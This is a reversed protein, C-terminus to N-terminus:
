RSPARHTWPNLRIALKALVTPLHCALVAGTWGADRGFHLGVGLRGKPDYWVSGSDGGHAIVDGAGRPVLRFGDIAVRQGELTMFYRGVGDVMGRTVATKSGSKELVEGLRARRAGRLRISTGLPELSWPVGPELPAWAADGPVGRLSRRLLLRAVVRQRPDQCLDGPQVIADGDRARASGALVHWNSLIGPRGRRDFAIAGLTGTAEANGQHGVCIGPQLISVMAGRLPGDRAYCGTAQYRAGFTVTCDHVGEELRRVASGAPVRLSGDIRHIRVGTRLPGVGPLLGVDIGCVGPDHGHRQLARRYVNGMRRTVLPDPISEPVPSM